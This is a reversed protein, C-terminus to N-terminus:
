GSSIQVYVMAFSWPIVKIDKSMRCIIEIVHGAPYWVGLERAIGKDLQIDFFNIDKCCRNQSWPTQYAVTSATRASSPRAVSIPATKWRVQAPQWAPPPLMTWGTHRMQDHMHCLMQTPALTGNHFQASSQLLMCTKGKREMKIRGLFWPINTVHTEVSWTSSNPIPVLIRQSVSMRQLQKTNTGSHLM